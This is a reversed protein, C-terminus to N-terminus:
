SSKLRTIQVKTWEGLLKYIESKDNEPLNQIRVRHGMGAAVYKKCNTKASPTVACATWTDVEGYIYIINKGKRVAKDTM